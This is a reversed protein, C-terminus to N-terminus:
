IGRLSELESPTSAESCSRSSATTPPPAQMTAAFSSYLGLEYYVFSYWLVSYDVM